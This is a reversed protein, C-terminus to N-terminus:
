GDFRTPRDRVREGLASLRDGVTDLRRSIRVVALGTTALKVGVFLGIAHAGSIPWNWWLCAGALLSVVGSALMSTWDDESRLGWATAIEAVGSVVFYVVLLFKVLELAATPQVVLVLGALAALAAVVLGTGGRGAERARTGWWGILAAAALLVLGIVVVITAGMTVPALAAIAGLVILAWGLHSTGKVVGGLFGSM